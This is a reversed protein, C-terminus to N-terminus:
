SRAPQETPPAAGVAGVGLLVFLVAGALRLGASVFLAPAYGLLDALLTGLTPALLTAIYITMQYLAIYSAAHRKPVTSLLMDFLVLDLGAMCIGALGAYLALPPVERTLGTLLPYLVLGFACLRLVVGAGYRRSVSSWLFYAVLLVGSNVTNIIGIWFDSAQLERVWYLPFLPLSLTLGCRFVFQSILFRSYARNERLAAAGERVASLWSGPQEERVPPENDPIAIRSSFLFSLLGGAFSGIFVLQYNLPFSIWDLVLGCLVVTLSTTAGLVSWRRSMLYYRQRPGAVAGMVVTFAVNVITQPVTAIAWIAIIPIPSDEAMVVFPVLGTLAYSSLVWVRARSYWPVINRQRELFSGIPLSLIIGTLAPMSTLLGVLLPSAGLRVLFVSLFTAVGSVIGVGVGDILVNRVNRQQVDAPSVLWRALHAVRQGFLHLM